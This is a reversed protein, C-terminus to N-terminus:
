ASGSVHSWLGDPTRNLTYGALALRARVTALRKRKAQAPDGVLASDWTDTTRHHKLALGNAARQGEDKHPPPSLCRREDHAKMGDLEPMAPLDDNLDLCDM